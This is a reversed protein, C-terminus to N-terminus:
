KKHQLHKPQRPTVRSKIESILIQQPTFNLGYQQQMVCSVAAVFADGLLMFQRCGSRKFFTLLNKESIGYLECLKDHKHRFLRGTQQSQLMRSLVESGHQATALEVFLQPLRRLQRAGLCAVGPVKEQQAGPTVTEALHTILAVCLWALEATTCHYKKSLM